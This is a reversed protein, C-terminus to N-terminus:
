ARHSSNIRHPRQEWLDWREWTFPSFLLFFNHCGSKGRQFWSSGVLASSCDRLRCQGLQEQPCACPGQDICNAPCRAAPSNQREQARGAEAQGLPFLSYSSKDAETGEYAPGENSCRCEQPGVRGFPISSLWRWGNGPDLTFPARAQTVPQSRGFAGSTHPM